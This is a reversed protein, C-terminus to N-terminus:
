APAGFVPSKADNVILNPVDHVRGWSDTACRSKNEGMPCSAFLHITQVNAQDTTLAGPITSLEDEGHIPRAGRYSPYVRVAGAALLLASLRGIGTSLDRLDTDSLRYRVSPDPLDFVPRVLGTCPGTIMVYYIAMHRWRERLQLAFGPYDALALALYPPSSISCGFSIRPSFEKVQHVSVGLSEHNVEEEFEAVVKVTPHM